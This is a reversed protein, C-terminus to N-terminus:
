FKVGFGWSCRKEAHKNAQKHNPQNHNTATITLNHNFFSTLIVMGFFKRQFRFTLVSIGM